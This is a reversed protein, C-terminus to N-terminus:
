GGGGGGEGEEKEVISTGMVRLPIVSDFRPAVILRKPKFTPTLFFLTSLLPSTPRPSTLLPPNHNSPIYSASINRTVLNQHM